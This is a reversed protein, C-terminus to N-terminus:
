KAYSAVSSRTQPQVLDDRVFTMGVVHLQLALTRAADELQERETGVLSSTTDILVAVRSLTPVADQLLQLQKPFLPPISLGTVNGGPRAHSTALGIAVLDGAGANVIPITATGERLARAVPTSSVMIVEPQLRLLEAVPEALQDIGNAYRLELLLNKGEVYGLDAMGQRFASVLATAEASPLAGRLHAIRHLTGSPSPEGQAPVQGPLRGCGALLALGAVGVGQVFQRRSSRM